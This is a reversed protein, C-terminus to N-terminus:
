SLSNNLKQIIQDLEAPDKFPIIIKGGRGEVHLQVKEGLLTSLHNKLIEFEPDANSTYSNRTRANPKERTESEVDRVSLNQQVIKEALKEPNSSALLARGHGASIKGDKIYGKIKTPLTLLRITNAIHSRSKGLIKSLSEQTHNFEEALRKYGEAEEIPNLNQRQINELLGVELAESETFQKIITPIRDLGAIKAARWRREGAVIEYKNPQEASMRIIIPQLVGKEKISQALANLEETEFTSRPQYKGPIIQYLPISNTDTNNDTSRPENIDGILAALGKGLAQKRIENM